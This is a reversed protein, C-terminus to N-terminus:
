NIRINKTIKGFTLPRRKEVYFYAVNFASKKHNGKGLSPWDSFAEIQAESYPTTSFDFLVLLAKGDYKMLKKMETSNVTASVTSKAATPKRVAFEVAVDDIVFDIYGNGTISGPLKGQVEPSVDDSFCGLLYCRVLPLLERESCENLRLTKVFETPYLSHFFYEFSKTVSTITTAM